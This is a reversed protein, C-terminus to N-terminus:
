GAAGGRTAVGCVFSVIEIVVIPIVFDGPVPLIMVKGNSGHWRTVFLYYLVIGALLIGAAVTNGTQGFFYAARAVVVAVFAAMFTELGTWVAPTYLHQEWHKDLERHLQAPNKVRVTSIESTFHIDIPIYHSRKNKGELYDKFMEDVIQFSQQHSPAKKDTHALICAVATALTSHTKSCSPCVYSVLVTGDQNLLISRVTSKKM